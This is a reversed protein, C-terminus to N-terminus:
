GLAFRNKANFDGMRDSKSGLFSYLARPPASKLPTTPQIFLLGPPPQAPRAAVREVREVTVREREPQM